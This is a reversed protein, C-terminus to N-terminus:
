SKLEWESPVTVVPRPSHHTLKFTTSGLLRDTFAGRGRAGLVLLDVENQEAARLLGTVASEAEVMVCEYPIGLDRVRATWEGHLLETLSDQWQRFSETPVEQMLEPDWTVVYVVFLEAGTQAAHNSAWTLAKMSDESGDIGVLIKEIMAVM